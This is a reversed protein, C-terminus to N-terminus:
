SASSRDPSRLSSLASHQQRRSAYCTVLVVLIHDERLSQLGGRTSRTGRTSRHTSSYPNFELQPDRRPFCAVLVRRGRRWILPLGAQFASVGHHVSRRLLRRERTAEEETYHLQPEM